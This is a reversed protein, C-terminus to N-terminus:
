TSQGPRSRNRSHVTPTRPTSPTRSFGPPPSGGEVTDVKFVWKERHFSSRASLRPYPLVRAEKYGGERSERPAYLLFSSYFLTIHVQHRLASRPQIQIPSTAFNAFTRSLQGMSPNLGDSSNYLVPVGQRMGDICPMNAPVPTSVITADYRIPDTNDVPQLVRWPKSAAFARHPRAILDVHAAVWTGPVRLCFCIGFLGAPTANLSKGLIFPRRGVPRPRLTHLSHKSYTSRLLVKLVKLAKLGLKGNGAPHLWISGSPALSLLLWPRAWVWAVLWSSGAALSPVRKLFSPSVSRALSLFVPSSWLGWSARDAAWGLVQSASHLHSNLPVFPNSTSPCMIIRGTPSVFSVRPINPDIRQGHPAGDDDDDISECCPRMSSNWGRVRDTGQRLLCSHVSQVIPRAGGEQATRGVAYLKCGAPTCPWNAACNGRRERGTGAM